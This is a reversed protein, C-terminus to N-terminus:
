KQEYEERSIEGRALRNKLFELADPRESSGAGRRKQFYFVSLVVVAAAIVAIIILILIGGYGFDM